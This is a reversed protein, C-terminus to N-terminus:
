QSCRNGGGGGVIQEEVVVEKEEEGDELGVRTHIQGEQASGGETDCGSSKKEEGRHAETGYAM